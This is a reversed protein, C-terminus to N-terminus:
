RPPKGTRQADRVKQAPSKHAVHQRRGRRDNERQDNEKQRDTRTDVKSWDLEPLPPFLSRESHAQLTVYVDFAIKETEGAM